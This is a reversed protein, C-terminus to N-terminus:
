TEEIGVGNDEEKKGDTSKAYKASSPNNNNDGLKSLIKSELRNAPIGMKEYRKEVEKLNALRRRPLKVHPQKKYIRM